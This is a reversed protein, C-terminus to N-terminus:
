RIRSLPTRVCGHSVVPAKQGKGGGLEPAIM